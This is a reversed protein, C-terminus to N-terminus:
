GAEKPAPKAKGSKRSAQRKQTARRSARQFNETLLDNICAGIDRPTEGNSKEREILGQLRERLAVFTFRDEPNRKWCGLMLEYFADPCEPPPGLMLGDKIKDKAERAKLTRFPLRGYSPIEWLFVGYSYVDTKESFLIPHKGLTEPAMWRVAMRLQGSLRFKGTEKDVPRTIGFDSLKVLNNTHLLANRAAIDMHIFGMSCCHDLAGAVQEAMILQELFTLKMSKSQCALMVKKLDGYQMMELVVLWPRYVMAAGVIKVINPHDLLTMIEAERTFEEKDSASAGERLLKVARQVDQSPDDEKIHQVALYVRGFQGAGLVKVGTLTDRNIQIHSLSDPVAERKFSDPYFPDEAKAELSKRAVEIAAVLSKCAESAMGPESCTWLYCNKQDLRADTEIVTFVEDDHSDPKLVNTFTVDNLDVVIIQEETLAEFVRLGDTTVIIISERGPERQRKLNKQAQIYANSSTDVGDSKIVPVSGLYKGEYVGHVTDDYAGLEALNKDMESQPTDVSKCGAIGTTIADRILSTQAPTAAVVHCYAVGLRANRTVYVVIKKNKPHIFHQVVTNLPALQLVDGERLSVVGQHTAAVIIAAKTPTKCAKKIIEATEIAASQQQAAETGKLHIPRSGLYRVELQLGIKDKTGFVATLDVGQFEFANAVPKKDAM